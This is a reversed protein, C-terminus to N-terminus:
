LQIGALGVIQVDGGTPVRLPISAFQCNSRVTAYNHYTANFIINYPASFDSTRSNATESLSFAQSIQINTPGSNFAWFQQYPVKLSSEYNSLLFHVTFDAQTFIIQTLAPQVVDSFTWNVWLDNNVLTLTANALPTPPRSVIQGIFGPTV